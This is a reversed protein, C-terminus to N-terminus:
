RLRISHPSLCRQELKPTTLHSWFGSKHAHRAELRTLLAAHSEFSGQKKIRPALLQCDLLHRAAHAYRSSKAGQLTDEIMARYLLTAALPSEAELTKAALEL